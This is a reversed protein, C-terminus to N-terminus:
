EFASLGTMNLCELVGSQGSIVHKYGLRYFSCSLFVLVVSTM